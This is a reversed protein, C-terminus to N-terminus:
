QAGVVKGKATKSIEAVAADLAERGRAIIAVDAGSSAFRNAIAFGIGKSGGTVIASRGSLSIEMSHESPPLSHASRLARPHPRIGRDPGAGPARGGAPGLAPGHRPDVVQKRAVFVHIAPCWPM